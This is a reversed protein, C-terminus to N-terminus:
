KAKPIGIQRVRNLEGRKVVPREGKLGIQRVRNLTTKTQSKGRDADPRDANGQQTTVKGVRVLHM